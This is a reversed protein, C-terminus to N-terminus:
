TKDKKDFIKLLENPTNRKVYMIRGENDLAIYNHMECFDCYDSIDHPQPWKKPFRIPHQARWRACQREAEKLDGYCLMEFTCCHAHDWYENNKHYKNELNSIVPNLQTVLAEQQELHFNFSKPM